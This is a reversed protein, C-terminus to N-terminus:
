VFDMILDRQTDTLLDYVYTYLEPNQTMLDVMIERKDYLSSKYLIYIVAEAMEEPSDQEEKSTKKSM